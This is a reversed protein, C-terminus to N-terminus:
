DRAEIYDGRTSTSPSANDDGSIQFRPTVDIIRGQTPANQLVFSVSIGGTANEALAAQPGLIRGLLSMFPGPNAIAQAQLYSVGGVGELAELVMMRLTPAKNPTGKTRGGTKKGKAM